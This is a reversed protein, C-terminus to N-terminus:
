ILRSKGNSNKNMACIFQEHSNERNNRRGSPNALRKARKAETRTRRQPHKTAIKPELAGKRGAKFVGGGYNHHIGAITPRCKM